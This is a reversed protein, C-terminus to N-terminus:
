SEGDVNEKPWTNTVNMVTAKKNEYAVSMIAVGFIAGVFTGVVSGIATATAYAAARRIM